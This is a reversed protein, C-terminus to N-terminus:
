FVKKLLHEVNVQITDIATQFTNHVISEPSGLCIAERQLATKVKAYIEKRGVCKLGGFNSNNNDDTM